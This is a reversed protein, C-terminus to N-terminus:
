RGFAPSSGSQSAQRVPSFLLAIVHAAPRSIPPPRLRPSFEKHELNPECVLKRRESLLLTVARVIDLITSRSLISSEVEGKGLSHEVVSSRCCLSERYWARLGRGLAPPEQWLTGAQALAARGTKPPFVDAPGGPIGSFTESDPCFRGGPRCNGCLAATLAPVVAIVRELKRDPCAVDPFASGVTQTAKGRPM